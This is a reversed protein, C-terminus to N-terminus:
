EVREKGLAAALPKADVTRLAGIQFGPPMLLLASTSTMVEGYDSRRSLSRHDM